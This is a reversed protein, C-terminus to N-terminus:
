VFIAKVKEASKKGVGRVDCLEEVTLDHLQKISYETLIEEAQKLNIGTATLVRAVPDAHKYKLPKPKVVYGDGQCKEVFKDIAEFCKKTNDKFAFSYNNRLLEAEFGEWRALPFNIYPNSVLEKLKGVIYVCSFEFGKNMREIQTMLRNDNISSTLDIMSWKTEIAINLDPFVYDGCELKLVDIDNGAWFDKAFAIKDPDERNDIQIRM